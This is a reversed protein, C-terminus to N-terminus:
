CPVPAPLGDAHPLPIRSPLDAFHTPRCLYFGQGYDCGLERLLALQDATEIGEAVVRFGLISALATITRVISARDDSHVLGELFFRDIKLLDFPFQHLCALSSYGTGFDDIALRFGAERLRGLTERAVDVDQMVAGETIELHVEAPDIGALRVTRTLRGALDPLLLHQRALNVSVGPIKGSPSRAEQRSLQGFARDLVREGLPVILGCEEAIPIFEGPSIPGLEPHEWRVLAEVSVVEGTDLRAIPQYHLSLQDQEIAQRLGQELQMRRRVRRRMSEDFVALSGRGASKAEYMATDADRLLDEAREYHADDLAIGISATSVVRFSKILYPESLVALLRRAVPVADSPSHLGELLVVFEDGGIRAATGSCLRLVEDRTRLNARLRAAIEVLLADGADHGLSDNVIKFRDFDLFLLAFGLGPGQRRSRIVRRLRRLLADRNPLRTLRDLRAARRLQRRLRVRDTVDGVSGVFRVPRGRDDWVAQGRSRFWRDGGSVGRVRYEVDYPARRELHERIASRVRHRDDPHVRDLFSAVLPGAERSDESIGLMRRLRGSFYLTDTGLDWDWIGEDAGDVALAYRRESRSLRDLYVLKSRQSVAVGVGALGSVMLAAACSFWFAHRMSRCRAEFVEGEIDVAVLCELRGDDHRLPVWASFFTGWDDDYPEPSVYPEGSAAARALGAPAGTYPEGLGAQDVVGDGDTDEPLGTDVVFRLEDGVARLTYIYRLHGAAGVMERLPAVVRLYEPGNQQGARTLRAHADPDIRLAALRAVTLLDEDVTHRFARYATSYCTWACALSGVLLLLGAVTGQLAPPVRHLRRGLGELPGSAPGSRRSRVGEPGPDGRPFEPLGLRTLPFREPRDDDGM